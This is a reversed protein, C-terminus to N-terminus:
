IDVTYKLGRGDSWGVHEIAQLLTKNEKRKSNTNKTSM